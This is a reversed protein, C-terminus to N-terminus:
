LSYFAFLLLEKKPACDAPGAEMGTFRRNAGATVEQAGPLVTDEPV